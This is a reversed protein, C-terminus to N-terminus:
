FGYSLRFKGQWIDLGPQGLSLYGAGAELLVSNFVSMRVGSKVWGTWPAPIAFLFDGTLIQGGNPREFEHHLGLETYPMIQTGNSFSFIRSFETSAEAYGLNSETKPLHINVDREFFRGEFLTGQLDYANSIIHSYSVSLKPRAYVGLVEYQGHLNVTGTYQPSVFSGNLVALQLDVSSQSYSVSADVVWNPSLMVAIYPGFSFGKSDSRLNDGFGTTTSNELSFSAGAVVDPTMRRDVGLTVTTSRGKMDLGFRRDSISGVYTETWANWLKDVGLDRGPTLPVTAGISSAPTRSLEAQRLDPCLPRGTERSATAAGPLRPDVCDM